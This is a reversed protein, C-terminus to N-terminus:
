GEGEPDFDSDTGWGSRGCAPCSLNGHKEVHEAIMKQTVYATFSCEGCIVKNNPNARKLRMKPNLVGHPFDGLRRAIDELHLLTDENATTATWPKVLGLVGSLKAFAGKHGTKIPLAAHVCEHLLTALVGGCSAVGAADLTPSIFIHRVEDPAADEFWCQGIAKRNGLPFGVSVRLEVPLPKGEKDFWPRFEEVAGLLWEERTKM